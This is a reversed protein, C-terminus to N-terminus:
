LPIGSRLEREIMEFDPRAMVDSAVCRNALDRLGSVLTENPSGSVRELLEGLLIGFARVEIREM